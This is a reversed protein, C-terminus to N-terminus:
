RSFGAVSGGKSESTLSGFDSGQPFIKPNATVPRKANRRAAMANEPTPSFTRKIANRNQTIMWPTSEPRKTRM